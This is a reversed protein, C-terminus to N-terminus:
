REGVGLAIELRQSIYSMFYCFVWFILTIFLYVERQFGVFQPQALVSRSIALLELLGITAVLTTDKFLAIFQGMLVPIVIRLAQPLIILAMTHFGSLGLAGAAEYQGHPIAQLGGRVGEALYAASFLTIGVMARVVLQPRMGSPLFLPLMTSAMFLITVLPVGRIVEIYGVSVWRIAPLRSRRGLALLVGLPFSFAIGVVTLLSTLLLGGWLTTPVIPFWGEAPNLGTIILIVLFFYVVWSWIALRRLALSRLRGLGFAILAFVDLGLLFLRTPSSITPLLALSLPVLLLVAALLRRGHVWIGWTLGVIAALLHLCVWVRWMQAMPYQGVMLLRFNVKLVEWQSQGILWAIIPKLLAYSLGFALVTLLANYWTSFLNKHVWGLLTYRETPPPLAQARAALEKTM